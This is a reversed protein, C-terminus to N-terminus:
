NHRLIRRVELRAALRDGGLLAVWVKKRAGPSASDKATLDFADDMLDLRTLFNSVRMLRILHNAEYVAHRQAHLSHRANKLLTVAERRLRMAQDHTQEIAFGWKDLQHYSLKSMQFLLLGLMGRTVASSAVVADTEFLHSGIAQDHLMISARFERHSERWVYLADLEGRRGRTSMVLGQLRLTEALDRRARAILFLRAQPPEHSDDGYLLSLSALGHEKAERLRGQMRLAVGTMQHAEAEEELSEAQATAAVFQKAAEEADGSQMAAHGHDLIFRFMTLHETETADM